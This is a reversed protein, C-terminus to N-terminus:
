LRCILSIRTGHPNNWRLPLTIKEGRRFTQVESKAQNRFPTMDMPEEEGPRRKNAENDINSRLFQDNDRFKQNILSQYNFTSPRTYNKFGPVVGDLQFNPRVDAQVLATLITLTLTLAISM